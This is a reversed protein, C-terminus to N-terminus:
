APQTVLLLVCALTMRAPVSVYYWLQSLGWIVAM